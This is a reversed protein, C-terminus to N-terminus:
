FINTLYKDFIQMIQENKELVIKFQDNLKQAAQNEVKDEVQGPLL